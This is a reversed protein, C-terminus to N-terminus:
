ANSAQDVLPPLRQPVVKGTTNRPLEDLFYVERPVAYRAFQDHVYGRVTEADLRRGAAPVIYAALRQGYERDPVGRVAVDAVEPLRALLDEIERPFINEGGSVVLDDERGDVYLRGARDFHGLDGTALLGDWTDLPTGSTYGEFLLENAAFIRGVEGRQTLRGDRDLIAIATGPPPRGATGPNARLDGPTAISVWSLETSGYLNYLKNGYANMFRTALDGLLASGSLAVLRLSSIDHDRRVEAPLNMIRQLMVPVCFLSARRCESITRLTALPDFRRHLVLTGRLGFCLQMAGYGWTHYLPAEVLMNDHVRLPIRAAMAALSKFGPRPHRRAGKPRGTTGSSLFITRSYVPPRNLVPRSGEAILDDINRGAAANDAWVLEKRVSRPVRTLIAQFEGDAVLMDVRLERLVARLHAEGLGTNLLVVEAGRKSAAVLTQVMGRHNRCLVGIRPRPGVREPALAVALRDTRADLEAFSMRGEDDILAPRWPDRAASSMLLGALSTGWTGLLALQRFTRVPHGPRLLGCRMLAIPVSIARSLQRILGPHYVPKAHVV